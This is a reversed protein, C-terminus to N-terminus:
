RSPPPQLGWELMDNYIRQSSKRDGLMAAAQLAMKFVLSLTHRQNSSADPPNTSSYLYRQNACYRNFERLVLSPKELAMYARMVANIIQVNPSLKRSRTDGLKAGHDLFMDEYFAVCEAPHYSLSNIDETAMVARPIAPLGSGKPPPGDLESDVENASLLSPHKEAVRKALVSLLRDGPTFMCATILKTYIHENPTVGDQQMFEYLERLRQIDKRKAYYRVFCTYVMLTPPLYCNRRLDDLLKFAFRGKRRILHMRILSEYTSRLYTFYAQRTDSLELPIKIEGQPGDESRRDPIPRNDKIVQYSLLQHIEALAPSLKRLKIYAHGRAGAFRAALTSHSHSVSDLSTSELLAALLHYEGIRRAAAILSKQIPTNPTIGRKLMEDYLNTLRILDPLSDVHPDSFLAAYTHVNIKVQPGYTNSEINQKIWYALDRRGEALHLRILENHAWISKLRMGHRETVEIVTKLRNLVEPSREYAYQKNLIQLMRIIDYEIVKHWENNNLVGNFGLWAGNPDNRHIAKYMLYRQSNGESPMHRALGKVSHLSRHGAGPKSEHLRERDREGRTDTSKTRSQRYGGGPVPRPDRDRDGIRDQRPSTPPGRATSHLRLQHSHGLGLAATRAFALGHTAHTKAPLISAAGRLCTRFFWSVDCRAGVRM